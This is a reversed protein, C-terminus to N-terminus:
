FNLSLARPAAKSKKMSCSALYLSKLSHVPSLVNMDCICLERNLPVTNLIGPNDCLEEPSPSGHKRGAKEACGQLILPKMKGLMRHEKVSKTGSPRVKPSGHSATHRGQVRSWSAHETSGGCVSSRAGARVRLRLSGVNLPNGTSQLLGWLLYWHQVFGTDM